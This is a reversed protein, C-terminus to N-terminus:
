KNIEKRIDDMFAANSIRTFYNVSFKPWDEVADLMKLDKETIPYLSVNPSIGGKEDLSYILLKKQKRFFQLFNLWYASMGIPMAYGNGSLPPISSRIQFTSQLVSNEINKIISEIAEASMHSSLIKELTNKWNLSPSKTM